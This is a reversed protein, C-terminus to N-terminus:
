NSFVSSLFFVEEELQIGFTTRARTKILAVLQMVDDATASGTNVVFNGHQDSIKAGGIRMGKLDLQDILWGASLRKTTSVELPLDLKGKLRQLEEDSSIEYNKFLCGASGADLPQSSKRAALKEDLEKLLDISDGFPFEFMASLVIDTSHKIASDRYGFGLEEKSVILDLNSRM